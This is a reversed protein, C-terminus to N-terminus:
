DWLAEYYKGFLRFGNSMRAQYATMGDRDWEGPDIVRLPFVGEGEDEPHESSDLEPLKKWFQDEWLINKSEFAFIMEDLVYEWRKFYNGDEIREGVLQAPTDRLEEPVDELDVQPAGNKTEKLQKLMPVIILALTTDMNWTDWPDIRISVKRKTFDKPYKGIHVKM